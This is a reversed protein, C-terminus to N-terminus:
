LRQQQGGRTATHQLALLAQKLAEVEARSEDGKTWAENAVFHEYSLEFRSRVDYFSYEVLHRWMAYLHLRRMEAMWGDSAQRKRRESVGRLEARDVDYLSLWVRELLLLEDGGMVGGKARSWPFSGKHYVEMALLFPTMSEEIGRGGEEEGRAGGKHPLSLLRLVLEVSPLLPQHPDGQAAYAQATSVDLADDVRGVAAEDVGEGCLLALKGLSWLSKQHAWTWEEGTEDGGQAAVLTLTAGAEAWRDMAVQQVWQLEPHATLFALLWEDYGAPQHMRFLRTTQHAAYYEDFLVRAFPQGFAQLAQGIRREREEEGEGEAMRVMAVFDEFEAALDFVVDVRSGLDVPLCDRLLQLLEGRRSHYEDRTAADAPTDGTYAAYDLLLSRAIRLLFQFLDVRLPHLLTRDAIARITRAVFHCHATLARRVRPEFTWQWGQVASPPMPHLAAAEARYRAAESLLADLATNLAQLGYCRLRKAQPADVAEVDCEAAAVAEVCDFVDGVGSVQQFFAESVSAGRRPLPSRASRRRLCHQMLLLLVREREELYEVDSRTPRLPVANLLRRLGLLAATQEALTLLATRAPTHLLPYLAHHHLFALFGGLARQKAALAVSLAAAREEEGGGGAAEERGDVLDRAVTVAAHDLEPSPTPGDAGGPLYDDAWARQLRMAAAQTQGHRHLHFALGLCDTAPDGAADSLGLPPPLATEDGRPEAQVVGYSACLLLCHAHDFAPLPSGQRRSAADVTVGGGLVLPSSFAYSSPPMSSNSANVQAVAWTSWAYLWVDARQSVGLHSASSLHPPLPWVASAADFPEDASPDVPFEAIHASSDTADDGAAAFSRHFLLFLSSSSTALAVGEVTEGAEALASLDFAWVAEVGDDDVRWQKLATTSLTWVGEDRAGRWWVISLVEAEGDGAGGGWPLLSALSSLLGARRQTRTGVVADVAPPTTGSASAALTLAFLRGHSTAVVLTTPAHPSQPLTLACTASEDRSFSLHTLPPSPPSPATGPLPERWWSVHGDDSVLLLAHSGDGDTDPSPSPVPAILHPSSSPHHLSLDYSLPTDTPNARWVLASSGRTLLCWGDDTVRGSVPLSPSSAWDLALPPLFSQLSLLLDSSSHLLKRIGSSPYLSTPPPPPQPLSAIRPRKSPSSSGSPRPHSPIPSAPLSLPHPSSKSALPSSLISSSSPHPPLPPHSSPTSHNNTPALPTRRANRPRASSSRM